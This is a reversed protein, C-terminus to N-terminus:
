VGNEISSWFALVVGLLDLWSRFTFVMRHSDPFTVVLAHSILMSTHIESGIIKM